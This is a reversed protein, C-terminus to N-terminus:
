GFSRYGGGACDEFEGAHAATIGGVPAGSSFRWILIWMVAQQDGGPIFIPASRRERRLMPTHQPPRGSIPIARL